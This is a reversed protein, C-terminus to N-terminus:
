FVVRHRLAFGVLINDRQKNRGNREENQTGGGDVWEASLEGTGGADRQIVWPAQTVTRTFQYGEGHQIHLTVSDAKSSLSLGDSERM